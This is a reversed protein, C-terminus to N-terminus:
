KNNFGSYIAEIFLKDYIMDVKKIHTGTYDVTKIAHLYFTNGDIIGYFIKTMLIFDYKIILRRNVKWVNVQNGNNKTLITKM